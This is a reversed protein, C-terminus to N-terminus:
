TSNEAVPRYSTRFLGVSNPTDLNLTIEFSLRFTPKPGGLSNAGNFYLVLFKINQHGHM